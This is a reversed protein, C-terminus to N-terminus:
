LQLLLHIALVGAIASVVLSWTRASIKGVRYVIASIALIILVILLQGLEIGVNFALLQLGLTGEEGPMLMARLYNSFGMGHILGFVCALFYRGRLSKSFVSANLTPLPNWVNFICTIIITVPILFEILDKKFRILDYVALGLTISHGLTFATVLVLVQRWAKLQYIACLAVLFLIHDYANPDAIHEFGIKLYAYFM